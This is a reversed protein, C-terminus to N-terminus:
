DALGLLACQRADLGGRLAGAWARYWAALSAVAGERDGSSTWLAKGQAISDKLADQIEPPMALAPTAALVGAVLAPPLFTRNPRRM